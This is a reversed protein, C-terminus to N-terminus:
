QRPVISEYSLAGISRACAEELLLHDRFISRFSICRNIDTFM